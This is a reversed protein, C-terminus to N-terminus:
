VGALRLLIDADDQTYGRQVLRDLAEGRDLLQKKVAGVIQAATLQVTLSEKELDWIALL